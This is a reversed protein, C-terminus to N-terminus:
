RLICTAVKNFFYGEIDKWSYEANKKGNKIFLRDDTVQVYDDHSLYAGYVCLLTQVGPGIGIFGLLLAGCGSFSFFAGLGSLIWICGIILWIVILVALLKIIKSIM